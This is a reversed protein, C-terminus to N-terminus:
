PEKSAACIAFKGRGKGSFFFFNYNLIISHVYIFALHFFIILTQFTSTIPLIRSQSKLQGIYIIRRLEVSLFILLRQFNHFIRALFLGYTVPRILVNQQLSFWKPFLKFQNSSSTRIHWCITALNSNKSKGKKGAM